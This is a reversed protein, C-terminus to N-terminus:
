REIAAFPIYASVKDELGVLTTKARERMELVMDSNESTVAITRILPGSKNKRPNKKGQSLSKSNPTPPEIMETARFPFGWMLETDNLIAQYTAEDGTGNVNSFYGHKNLAQM